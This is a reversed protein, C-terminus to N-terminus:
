YRTTVTKAKSWKSYYTKGNVVKYTRVRVYYKKGGKLEKITKSTKDYGKVKYKKSNKTFSSNTARQIQYGTIHSKAMKESQKNWKVTIKKSGPSLSKISTGKPKVTFYHDYYDFEGDTDDDYSYYYYGLGEIKFWYDGVSKRNASSKKYVVKYDTGKVLTKSKGNIKAKITINATRGSKGNYTRDGVTIKANNLDYYNKVTLIMTAESHATYAEVRFYKKGCNVGLDSRRFKGDTSTFTIEDDYAEGNKDCRYFDYVVNDPDGSNYTGLRFTHNDDPSITKSGDNGKVYVAMDTKPRAKKRLTVRWTITKKDDSIKFYETYDEDDSYSDGDVYLMYAGDPRAPFATGSKFTLMVEYTKDTVYKGTAPLEEGYADYWKVSELTVGATDVSIDSAKLYSQGTYLQLGSVEIEGPDSAYVVAPLFPVMTVALALSLVFTLLRKKM